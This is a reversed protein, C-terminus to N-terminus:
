MSFEWVNMSIGFVIVSIILEWEGAPELVCVRVCVCVRACVSSDKGSALHHALLEESWQLM